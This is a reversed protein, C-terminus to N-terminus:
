EPLNMKRLFATYRPDGKLRALIPDVKILYLGADKQRYARELWAFALNAEGRYAYADAIERAAAEWPVPLGV